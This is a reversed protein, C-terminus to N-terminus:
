TVRIPTESVRRKLLRSVANAIAAPAGMIPGEGGGYAGSPIYPSPTEFHIYQIDTDVLDGLTLSEYSDFTTVLPNGREDYKLEEYLALNIGHIISGTM